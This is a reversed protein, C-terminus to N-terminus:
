TRKPPDVRAFRSPLLEPPLPGGELIAEALLRGTLVALLIGNRFHGSAVWVGHAEGLPGVVPLEDPTAPRFGAWAEILEAGVLAPVVAAASQALRQVAGLTVRPDFGAQAEQTAGALVRGGSKPVLYCDGWVTMPLRLGTARLMLRQGKVPFVPLGALQSTWAGAALVLHECLVPGAATEVRGPSWSLVGTGERVEAGLAVAGAALALTLREPELQGDPVWLGGLAAAAPPCLERVAAPDLIRAELGMERQWRARGELEEMQEPRYALRLIGNLRLDFGFPLERELAAFLSRAELGLRLLPGPGHAEVQPALMGGAGCSAGGAVRGRELLLTRAGRRQLEYAVAAGVAGGGVVVADFQESLM